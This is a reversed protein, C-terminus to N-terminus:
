LNEVARNPLLDVGSVVDGHEAIRLAGDDRGQFHLVEDRQTGVSGAGALEIEDQDAVLHIGIICCRMESPGLAGLGLWSLKMKIPLSIFGLPAISARMGPRFTVM